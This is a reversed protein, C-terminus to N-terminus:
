QEVRRNFEAGEAGFCSQLNQSSQFSTEREREREKKIYLKEISGVWGDMSM